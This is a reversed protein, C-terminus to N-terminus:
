AKKSVNEKRKFIKRINSIIKTLFVFFWICIGYVWVNFLAFFKLIWKFIFTLIKLLIRSLSLRFLIFGLLAGIFVYARIEGNTVSLLFCFTIPSIIAFYIIDQVFVLAKSPNAALRYGKFIDFILCFVAGLILSRLFSIVQLSNSIEWM